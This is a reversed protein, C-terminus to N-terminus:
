QQVEEHVGLSGCVSVALMASGASTDGATLRRQAGRSYRGCSEASGRHPLLGSPLSAYRARSRSGDVWCGNVLMGSVCSCCPLGTTLLQLHVRTARRSTTPDFAATSIKVCLWRAFIVSCCTGRGNSGRRPNSCAVTATASDSLACYVHAMRALFLTGGSM